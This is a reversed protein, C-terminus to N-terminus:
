NAALAESMIALRQGLLAGDGDTEFEVLWAALQDALAEQAAHAVDARQVAALQALSDTAPLGLTWMRRVTTADAGESRLAREAVQEAFRRQQWTALRPLSYVAAGTIAATIALRSLLRGRRRIPSSATIM